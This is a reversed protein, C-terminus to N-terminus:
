PGYPFEDFFPSQGLRSMPVLPAQPSLHDEDPLVDFSASTGRPLERPVRRWPPKLPSLPAKLAKLHDNTISWNVIGQPPKFPAVTESQPVNHM